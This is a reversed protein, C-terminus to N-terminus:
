DKGTLDRRLRQAKSITKGWRRSHEREAQRSRRRVDGALERQLKQMGTLRGPDLAGADIADSVACGPEGDHGCDAFRCGTALAAVDAYVEDVADDGGVVGLERMGPTDVLAGGGPLPLLSRSTTTHKGRDDRERIGGTDQVPAGLLANVLTSKGVGSTGVVAVTRGPGLWPALGEIGAGHLASVWAVHPHPVRAALSAPDDVLDAKNLVVVATAGGAQSAVLYREIRRLNLDANLSTVVFVVDVNAAVLQADHHSGAARRLFESTRPLVAEVMSPTDPDDVHRLAVWDGVGPSEAGGVLSARVLARVPGSATFLDLQGRHEGSVRAPILGREAHALFSSARADSWGLSALLSSM